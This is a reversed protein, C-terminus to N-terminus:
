SLQFDPLETIRALVDKMQRVASAPTSSLINPWEYDPAGGLLSEMLAAKRAVSLKRPLLLLAVSDILKSANTYDPFQKIFALTLEDDMLSMVEEALEARRPFTSTTIWDHYGPWGAVNPPDFLEQGLAPM